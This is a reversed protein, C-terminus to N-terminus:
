AVFKGTENGFQEFGDRAERSFIDIRWGTTVRKVVDYFEDPKRSHDRRPANFCTFFATSDCFQPTGHRAYVAFECNYQPLGFPQFGGPKHWVFNCVYRFDWRELLRLTMPLFKHTTWCWLHCDEAAPLALAALEDESMTPYDFGVQNPAVEREIKEMPWPPDIVIVDYSGDFDRVPQEKLFQNEEKSKKNRAMRYVDASTIDAKTDNQKAYYELREAVTTWGNMIQWRTAMERTWVGEELATQFSTLRTSSNKAPRGGVDREIASLRRGIEAECEVKVEAIDNLARWHEGQLRGYDGFTQLKNRHKSLEALSDITALQAQMSHKDFVPGKPDAM